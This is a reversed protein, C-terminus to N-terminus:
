PTNTLDKSQGKVIGFWGFRPGRIWPRRVIAGAARHLKWCGLYNQPRLNRFCGGAPPWVPTALDM